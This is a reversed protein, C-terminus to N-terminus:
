VKHVVCWVPPLGDKEGRKGTWGMSALSGKARESGYEITSGKVWCGNGAEMVETLAWGQAEDGRKRLVNEMVMAPTLQTSAIFIKFNHEKGAHKAEWVKSSKNFIHLKTHEPPYM